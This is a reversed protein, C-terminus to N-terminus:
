LLKAAAGVRGGEIIRSLQYTGVRYLGDHRERIFLPRDPCSAPPASFSSALTCKHLLAVNAHGWCPRWGVPWGPVSWRRASCGGLVITPCFAAAGFAPIATWMFLIAAVNILNFLSFNAGPKPPTHLPSPCPRGPNNAKWHCASRQQRQGPAM